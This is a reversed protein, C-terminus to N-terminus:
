TDDDDGAREEDVKDLVSLIAFGIGALADAIRHEPNSSPRAERGAVAKNLSRQAKQRNTEQEAM